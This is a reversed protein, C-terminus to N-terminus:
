NFIDDIKKMQEEYIGELNKCSESIQYDLSQETLLKTIESKIFSLIDQKNKILIEIRVKFIKKELLNREIWKIKFNDDNGYLNEFLKKLESNNNLFNVSIDKFKQTDVNQIGNNNELGGRDDINNFIKKLNSINNSIIKNNNIRVSQTLQQEQNENKQDEEFAEGRPQIISQYRSNMKNLKNVHNDYKDFQNVILKRNHDSIIQSLHLNRRNRIIIYNNNREIQKEKLQEKYGATYPPNKKIQKLNLYDKNRENEVPNQAKSIKPFILRPKQKEISSSPKKVPIQFNPNSLPFIQEMIQSRISQHPKKRLSHIDFDNPTIEIKSYKQDIKSSISSKCDM